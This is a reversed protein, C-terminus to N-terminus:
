LKASPFMERFTSLWNISDLAQKTPDSIEGLMEIVFWGSFDSASVVEIFKEFAYKGPVRELFPVSLHIHHPEFLAFAIEPSIGVMWLSGTDIQPKINESNIIMSLNVVEEYTTLYDAGYETANPELTLTIKNEKLCPNLQNLFTKALEHAHNLDLNGKVRNKPSGFVAVDAGLLGGIRIVNELHKRLEGWCSQDFLQLEPHGYLLSQIGSVVLNHGKLYEKFKMLEQDSVQNLDPWIATPAIEVGHLGANALKPIIQDLPTNGWALNSISYRL